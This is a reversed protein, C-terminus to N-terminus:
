KSNGQHHQNQIYTALRDTQAELIARQESLWSEAAALQKPILRCTRIRGIKESGILGSDELVKVHKLFSPLGMKFPAALDKVSTPGSILKAVVGRRTPDALAHFATDLSTQNYAMYSVIHCLTGVPLSNKRGTSQKAGGRSGNWVCRQVPVRSLMDGPARKEV